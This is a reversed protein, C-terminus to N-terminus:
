KIKIGCGSCFNDDVDILSGCSTCYKNKININTDTIDSSQNNNKQSIINGLLDAEDVKIFKHKGFPVFFVDQADLKYYTHGYTYFTGEVTEIYGTNTICSIGNIERYGDPLPLCASYIVSALSVLGFLIFGSIFVSSIMKNHKEVCFSVFALITAIILFIIM